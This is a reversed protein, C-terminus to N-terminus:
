QLIHTLYCCLCLLGFCSGWTGFGGLGRLLVFEFVGCDALGGIWGPLLVGLCTFEYWCVVCLM